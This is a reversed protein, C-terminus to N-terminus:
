IATSAWSRTDSVLMHVLGTAALSGDRSFAGSPLKEGIMSTM